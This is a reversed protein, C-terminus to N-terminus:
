QAPKACLAKADKADVRSAIGIPGYMSAYLMEKGDPTCAVRNELKSLQACGSLAFLALLAFLYRM